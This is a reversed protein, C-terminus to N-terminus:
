AAATSVGFYADFAAWFQQRVEDREQLIEHRSRPILVSTGLKLRAAFEETARSSVVRDEGAAFMLIPVQMRKPYEPHALKRTARYAARLWGVTPSGLALEPAHQLVLRNRRFRERDSTLRNGEFAATEEPADSGGVVYLRGLGIAGLAEAYLRALPQPVVVRADAFALMPATLVIRQFWTGPQTANRLLIAGGMSHGLAIFPPRCDPLVVDKMFRLLDHDYQAFNTVHGKRRNDLARTSGGQCRWDLAAVAFGRRRLDAVVEFYKELYEGRGPFLCVTGRYPARTAQWRAFRLAVGDRSPLMGCFAGSPVPNCALSVLQTVERRAQRCRSSAPGPDPLRRLKEYPDSSYM